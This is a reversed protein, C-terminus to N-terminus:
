FWEEEDLSNIARKKITKLKGYFREYMKISIYAWEQDAERKRKKKLQKPVLDQMNAVINQLDKDSYKPNYYDFSVTDYILFIRSKLNQCRSYTDWLAKRTPYVDAIAVAMDYTVEDQTCLM